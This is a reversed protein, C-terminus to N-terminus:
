PAVCQRSANCTSPPTYVNSVCTEDACPSGVPYSACGGSGDCRGNNGCSPMGEDKCVGRSDANGAAIAVCQGPSGPLACSRCAGTCASACCVGDVCYNLECEAAAACAQGLKKLGCTKGQPGDQCVKGTDCDGDSQCSDTCAGNACRFPSCNNLNATRCTGLGDCTRATNLRNGSCTPAACLTDRPYKACGAVGDCTGTRGCSSAGQDTCIGRPDPVGAAVPFCTGEKAPLNCKVCAGGCAVNCCVNDACFGSACESGAQCHAGKMKKGCSGAQCAHGSV